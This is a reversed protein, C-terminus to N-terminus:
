KLAKLIVHLQPAAALDDMKLMLFEQGDLSVDYDSWFGQSTPTFRTEIAVQPTGLHLSPETQVDVTLLRMGDLSRYFIERGTRSWVPQM